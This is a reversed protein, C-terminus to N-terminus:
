SEPHDERHHRSVTGNAIEMAISTELLSLNKVAASLKDIFQNKDIRGLYGNYRISEIIDLTLMRADKALRLQDISM